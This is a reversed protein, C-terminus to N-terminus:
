QNGGMSPFRRCAFLRNERIYSIIEPPCVKEIIRQPVYIMGSSTNKYAEPFWHVRQPFVLDDLLESKETSVTAYKTLYISM